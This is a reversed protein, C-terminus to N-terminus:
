LSNSGTQALLDRIRAQDICLSAKKKKQQKVKNENNKNENGVILPYFPQRRFHLYIRLICKASDLTPHPTPNIETLEWRGVEAGLVVVEAARSKLLFSPSLLFTKKKGKWKVSGRARPIGSLDLLNEKQDMIIASCKM